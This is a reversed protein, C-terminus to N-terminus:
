LFNFVVNKKLINNGSIIGKVPFTYIYTVCMYDVCPLTTRHKFKIIQMGSIWSIIASIFDYYIINLGEYSILKIDENCQKRCRLLATFTLVVHYQLANLFYQMYDTHPKPRIYTAHAKSAPYLISDLFHLLM